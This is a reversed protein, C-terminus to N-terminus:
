QWWQGSASSTFFSTARVSIAFGRHASTTAHHSQHLNLLNAELRLPRRSTAHPSSFSENTMPRHLTRRPGPSNVRWSREARECAQKQMVFSQM